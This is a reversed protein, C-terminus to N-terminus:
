YIRSEVGSYPEPSVHTCSYSVLKTLYSSPFLYVIHVLRFLSGFTLMFGIALCAGYGILRNRWSLSPCVSCVAEEMEQLTSREEPEGGLLRRSKSKINEFAQRTLNVATYVTVPYATICSSLPLRPSIALSRPICCCYIM